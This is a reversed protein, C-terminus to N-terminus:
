ETPKLTNFYDLFAIVEKESKLKNKNEKLWTDIASNSPLAALISQRDLDRCAIIKGNNYIAYSRSTYFSSLSKGQIPDYPSTKVLQKQLLILQFDGANLVRYFATGKSTLHNTLKTFSAIPQTLNNKNLFVLRTVDQNYVALETGDGSLYHIEDNYLNLKAQNIKAKSGNSFYIIAPNWQDSWFASGEVEAYGVNNQKSKSPNAPDYVQINGNFDRVDMNLQQGHVQIVLILGFGFICSKIINSTTIMTKLKIRFNTKIELQLVKELVM